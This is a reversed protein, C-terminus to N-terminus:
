RYRAPQVIIKQVVKASQHKYHFQAERAIGGALERWWLLSSSSSFPSKENILEIIIHINIYLDTFLM